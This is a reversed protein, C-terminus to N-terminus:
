EEWASLFFNISIVPGRWTGLETRSYYYEWVSDYHANKREERVVGGGCRGYGSREEPYQIYLTVIIIM